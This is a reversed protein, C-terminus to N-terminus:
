APVGDFESARALLHARQEDLSMKEFSKAESPIPKTAPGRGIQTKKTLKELQGTLEKVQAELKESLSAKQELKVIAVAHSLGHADRTLMPFKQLLEVARKNLPSNDDKLWPEQQSLRDFSAKWENTFKEATQKEVAERASARVEEAKQRALTAKDAEGDAEFAKAADEYDKATFGKKDRFSELDQVQSQERGKSWEDREKQFAERDKRFQERESNIQEWTKAKRAQERAFKSQADKPQGETGQKGAQADDAKGQPKAVDKVSGQAGDGAKADVENGSEVANATETADADAGQQSAEADPRTGSDAGSDFQAAAALLSDREKDLVADEM